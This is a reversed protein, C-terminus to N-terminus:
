AAATTAAAAKEFRIADGEVTVLVLTATASTAKWSRPAGASEGRLRQLARKLPRAGWPTPDWGQM